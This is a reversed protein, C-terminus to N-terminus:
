QKSSSGKLWLSQCTSLHACIEMIESYWVFEGTKFCTPSIILRVNRYLLESSRLSLVRLSSFLFLTYEVIRVRQVQFHVSNTRRSLFVCENKILMKCKNNFLRFWDIAPVNIIKSTWLKRSIGIIQRYICFAFLWLLRM